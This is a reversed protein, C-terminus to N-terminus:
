FIVMHSILHSIRHHDDGLPLILAENAIYNKIPGDLGLIIKTTSSAPGGVDVVSKFLNYLGAETAFDSDRNILLGTADFAFMDVVRNGMMRVRFSKEESNYDLITTTPIRDILSFIDFEKLSPLRHDGRVEHWHALLQRNEEKAPHLDDDWCFVGQEDEIGAVDFTVTPM